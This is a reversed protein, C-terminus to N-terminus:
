PLKLKGKEKDMKRAELVSATAREQGERWVQRIVSAHEKAKALSAKARKAPTKKFTAMVVM